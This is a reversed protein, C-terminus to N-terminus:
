RDARAYAPCGATYLGAGETMGAFAPIWFSRQTKRPPRKDNRASRLPTSFDRPSSLTPVGRAPARGGDNGRLRSDLTGTLARSPAPHLLAKTGEGRRPFTLIPTFSPPLTAHTNDNRASRLAASSDRPRSPTPADRTPARAETMGAFAPIWRPRSRLACPRLTTYHPASSERTDDALLFQGDDPPCQLRWHSACGSGPQGSHGCRTIRPLCSPSGVGTLVPCGHPTTTGNM